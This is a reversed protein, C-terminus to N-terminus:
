PTLRVASFAMGDPGKGTRLFGSVRRRDLDLLAIEDHAATAVFARHLRSDHPRSVGLTM